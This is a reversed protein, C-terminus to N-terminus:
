KLKIVKVKIRGTSKKSIKEFSQLSLDLKDTGKCVDTVEVTDIKNNSINTVILYSGDVMSGNQIKGVKLKLKNILYRSAATTSHTRHVKPHGKTNYWTAGCIYDTLNIFSLCILSTTILLLKKFLNM